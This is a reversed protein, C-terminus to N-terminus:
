VRDPRSAQLAEWGKGSIRRQTGGERFSPHTFILGDGALRRLVEALDTVAPLREAIEHDRLSRVPALLGLVARESEELTRRENEM